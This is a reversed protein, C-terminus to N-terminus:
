TFDMTVENRTKRVIDLHHYFVENEFSTLTSIDDVRLFNGDNKMSYATGNLAVKGKMAGNLLIYSSKGINVSGM